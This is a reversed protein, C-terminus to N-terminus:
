FWRNSSFINYKNNALLWGTSYDLPSANIEFPGMWKLNIIRDLIRCDIINYIDYRNMYWFFNHGDYDKMEIQRRVENPEVYSDLVAILQESIKEHLLDQSHKSYGFVETIEAIMRYLMLGVRLPNINNRLFSNSAPEHLVEIVVKM